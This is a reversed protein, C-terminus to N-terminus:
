SPYMPVTRTGISKDALCSGVPRSLLRKALHVKPFAIVSIGVIRLSIRSTVARSRSPNSAMKCRAPRDFSGSPSRLGSSVQSILWRADTRRASNAFSTPTLLNM